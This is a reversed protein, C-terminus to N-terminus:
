GKKTIFVLLTKEPPPTCSQDQFKIVKLDMKCINALNIKMKKLRFHRRGSHLQEPASDSRSSLSPLGCTPVPM